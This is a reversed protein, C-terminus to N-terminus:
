RLFPFATKHDQTSRDDTADLPILLVTAPRSIPQGQMFLAVVTLVANVM